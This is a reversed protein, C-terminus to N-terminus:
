TRPSAERRLGHAIVGDAGAFAVAPHRGLAELLSDCLSWIADDHVIHHTLLGIPADPSVFGNRRLRLYGILDRAVGAADRATGRRWDIPDIQVDFHPVAGRNPLKAGPAWKFRALVRSLRRELASPGNSVGAFGM